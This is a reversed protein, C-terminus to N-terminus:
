YKECGIKAHNGKTMFAFLVVGSKDALFTSVLKDQNV